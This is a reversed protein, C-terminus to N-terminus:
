KGTIVIVDFESSETSSKTDISNFEKKLVEEIKSKVEENAKESYYITTKAINESANKTKIDKFGKGELLTKIKGAQGAVGSGNQVEVKIEDIAVSQITPSPEETPTSSSQSSSSMPNQVSKPNARQILVFLLIAVGIAIFIIALLIPKSNTKEEFEPTQTAYLM